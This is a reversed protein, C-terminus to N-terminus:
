GGDTSFICEGGTKTEIDLRTDMVIELITVSQFCVVVVLRQDEVYCYTDSEM